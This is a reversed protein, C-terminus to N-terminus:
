VVLPSHLCVLLVHGMLDVGVLDGVSGKEGACRWLAVDVSSFSCVRRSVLYFVMLFQAFSPGSLWEVVSAEASHLAPSSDYNGTKKLVPIKM